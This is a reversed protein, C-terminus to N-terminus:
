NLKTFTPNAVVGDVEKKKQRDRGERLDRLRHDQSYAQEKAQKASKEAAALWVVNKRDHLAITDTAM